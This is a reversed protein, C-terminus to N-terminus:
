KQGVTLVLNFVIVHSVYLADLLNSTSQDYTNSHSNTNKKAM